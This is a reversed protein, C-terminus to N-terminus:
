AAAERGIQETLNVAWKRSRVLFFGGICKLFELSQVIIFMPLIPMATLRSLLLAVPVYLVWTVGSDSAFTIWSKGGARLTFYCVNNYANAPFMCANVWIFLTAMHRITDSTNYLLPIFPACLAVVGGLVFGAAVSFCALHRSEAVAGELQGAGLMSGVLIATSSGLAFFGCFFLNFVATSINMASVVELGRVSYCQQLIANGASWLFENLMLPFGISAVRKLVAGPIRLSKYVGVIYPHREPHRHTSRMCIVLETARAIVTAIAAGSVGMAPLGLKGFILIYNFVLNVFVAVIGAKMPLLTEGTERLTAAYVEKLAFFPMYVLMVTLYEKAYQMTASLDLGENGEYLFLGILQEGRTLFLALFVVIISAAIILKARFTHRVGETNKAGNYQTTLIGAGALGGFVTLNFVFLLQGVISVASMPETGIRGVMLNDLMNVFNTILNQAFIPLLVTFLRRYFSKSGFYHELRNM